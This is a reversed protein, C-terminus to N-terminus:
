CFWLRIRRFRQFNLYSGSLIHMYNFMKIKIIFWPWKQVQGMIRNPLDRWVRVPAWSQLQIKYCAACTPSGDFFVSFPPHSQATFPLILGLVPITHPSRTTQAQFPHHKASFLSNPKGTHDYRIVFCLGHRYKPSVPCEPPISLYNWNIFVFILGNLVTIRFVHSTM